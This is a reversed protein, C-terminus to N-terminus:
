KAATAACQPVAATVSTVNLRTEARDEILLGKVVLTTDKHTPLAFERVGILRYRRTGAPPATPLETKLPAVANSPVPDTAAVLHWEGGPQERLCGTVSVIDVKKGGQALVTMPVLLVAAAASLVKM